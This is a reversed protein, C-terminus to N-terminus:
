MVPLWHETSNMNVVFLPAQASYQEGAIVQTILDLIILHTPPHSVPPPAYLM